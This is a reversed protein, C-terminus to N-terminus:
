RRGYAGQNSKAFLSARGDIEGARLRPFGRARATFRVAISGGNLQRFTGDSQITLTPQRSVPAGEVTTFTRSAVQSLVSGDSGVLYITYKTSAQLGNVHFDTVTDSGSDPLTITASGSQVSDSLSVPLM